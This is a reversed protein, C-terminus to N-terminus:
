EMYIIGPLSDYSYRRSCTEGEGLCVLGDLINQSGLNSTQTGPTGGVPYVLIKKLFEKSSYIQLQRPHLDAGEAVEKIPLSKCVAIGASIRFYFCTPDSMFFGLSTYFIEKIKFADCDYWKKKPFRYDYILLAILIFWTRIPFFPRLNPKMPTFSLEKQLLLSQVIYMGIFFAIDMKWCFQIM